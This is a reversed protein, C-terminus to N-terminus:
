IPRYQRPMWYQPSLRNKCSLRSFYNKHTLAKITKNTVKYPWLVYAHMIKM